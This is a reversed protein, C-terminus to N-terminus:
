HARSKESEDDPSQPWGKGSEGHCQACNESLHRARQWRRFGNPIPLSGMLSSRNRKRALRWNWSPRGSAKNEIEHVLSNIGSKIGARDGKDIEKLRDIAGVNAERLGANGSVRASQCGERRARREQLRQGPLRALGRTKGGRSRRFGCATFLILFVSMWSRRAVSHQWSRAWRRFRIRNVTSSTWCSRMLILRPGNFSLTERHSRM